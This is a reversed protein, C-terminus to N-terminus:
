VYSGTSGSKKDVTSFSQICHFNDIEVGQYLSVDTFM